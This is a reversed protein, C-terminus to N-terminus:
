MTFPFPINRRCCVNQGHQKKSLQLLSYFKDKCRLCISLQLLVMEAKRSFGLNGLIQALVLPILNVILFSTV